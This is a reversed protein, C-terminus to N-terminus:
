YLMGMFSLLFKREHVRGIKWGGKNNQSALARSFHLKPTSTQEEAVSYKLGDRCIFFFGFLSSTVTKFYTFSVKRVFNSFFSKNRDQM